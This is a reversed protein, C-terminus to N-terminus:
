EDLQGLWNRGDGNSCRVRMKYGRTRAYFTVARLQRYRCREKRADWVFVDGLIFAIGSHSNVGYRVKFEDERPETTIGLV